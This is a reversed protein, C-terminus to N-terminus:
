EGKLKRVAARVTDQTITNAQEWSRFDEPKVRLERGVRLCRIRGTLLLNERTWRVSRNILVAIDNTTLSYTM